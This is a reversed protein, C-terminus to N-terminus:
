IHENNYVEIYEREFNGDRTSHEMHRLYKESELYEEYEEVKVAGSDIFIYSHGGADKFIDEDVIPYKDSSINVVSVYVEANEKGLEGIVYDEMKKQYVERAVICPYAILVEETLLGGLTYSIYEFSIRYKEETAVLM